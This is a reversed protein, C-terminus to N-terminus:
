TNYYMGMYIDIICIAMGVGSFRLSSKVLSDECSAKLSNVIYDIGLDWDVRLEEEFANVNM